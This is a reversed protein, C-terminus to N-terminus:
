KENLLKQLQIQEKEPLRPVLQEFYIKHNKSKLLARMKERAFKSFQWRHSTTANVLFRLVNKDNKNIFLINELANQRVSSEFEPSCYDLLEDYLKVKNEPEYEKTGLALTLWLIRLNKDNFGVWDKSKDLLQKRDAPFQTWLTRLVIEQTIYSKDDLLTEYEAKFVDLSTAMTNAIAQRVPISNTGMALKLVNIKEEYPVNEIQYVIEEKVTYYAESQLVKEFLAKKDTFPTERLKQIEFLQQMTKNESLILDVNENDFATQELWNTKFKKLDYPSLLKIENLFDDTSVNQFAYKKLYNKVAQQFIKDGVEKRLVILAWAGRQYFTLSSAKEDLLPISDQLASEKLQLSSKYIKYYFYDDGFIKKEALLAYYTAFGEQLWHDRGSKATVLDGFWQHALEHANVNM